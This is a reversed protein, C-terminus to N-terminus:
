TSEELMVMAAETLRMTRGVPRAHDIRPRKILGEKEMRVLIDGARSRGVGLAVGVERVTPPYGHKTVFREIFEVTERCRQPYREYTMARM